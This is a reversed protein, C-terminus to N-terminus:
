KTEVSASLPIRVLDRNLGGSCDAWNMRTLYLFLRGNASDFFSSNSNHDILSPYDHFSGCGSGGYWPEVRALLKPPSWNLLDPSTSYYVGTTALDKTRKMFVGAWVDGIRIISRLPGSIVDPAIPDCDDMRGNSQDSITNPSEFSGDRYAAWNGVVNKLPARLLCNHSRSDLESWVFVYALGNNAVINSTSFFGYRSKRYQDYPKAPAAVLRQRFDAPYRFRLQQQDATVEIISSYWCALNTSCRKHRKGAYEHSALGVLKGDSPVLAQIWYRTDFSSPDDSESASSTTRCDPKLNDFDTGILFQNQYHAAILAISNDPRRFARAPSDPIFNDSCRQKSWSYVVEEAGTPALNIQQLAAQPGGVPFLLGLLALGAQFSSRWIRRGSTMPYSRYM